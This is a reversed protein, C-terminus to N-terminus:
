GRWRLTSNDGAWPLPHMSPLMQDSGQVLLEHCRLLCAPFSLEKSQESSENQNKVITPHLLHSEVAMLVLLAVCSFLCPIVKLSRVGMLAYGVSPVNLM